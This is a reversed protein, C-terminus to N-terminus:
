ATQLTSVPYETLIFNEQPLNERKKVQRTINDPNSNLAQPSVGSWGPGATSRAVARGV